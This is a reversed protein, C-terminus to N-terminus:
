AAEKEEKGDGFLIQVGPLADTSMRRYWDPENEHLSIGFDRCHRLFTPEDPPFLVIECSHRLYVVGPRCDWLPELENLRDCFAHAAALTDAQDMILRSKAQAEAEIRDLEAQLVQQRLSTTM